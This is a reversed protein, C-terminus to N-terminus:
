NHTPSVKVKLFDMARLCDSLERNKEELEWEYHRKMREAHAVQILLALEYPYERFRKESTAPLAPTHLDSFCM